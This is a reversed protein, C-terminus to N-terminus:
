PSSPEEGAAALTVPLHSREGRDALAGPQREPDGTRTDEGGRDPDLVLRCVLGPAVATGAPPFQEAVWGFGAARVEIGSGRLLRLADRLALGRLEPVIGKEDPPAGLTVVTGRGVIAGGAPEQRLVREGRAQVRAELGAQALRAVAAGPGLLRVDPVVVREGGVNPAPAAEVERMGQPLNAPGLTAIAVERFVPAAVEGGYHMRAPEDVSVVLVYRPDDAPFLGAFSSLYKGQAYGRGDTRAKQATGTKGAVTVGAIAARKGTGLEVARVLYRNLLAATEPSMTRRVREPRSALRVDGDAGVIERIIRPRRLEGGTALSLYALAVQLTTASVEQGIAVTPVSRGSWEEVPRLTGAAEGPLEIGSRRGFGFRRAAEYLARAGVMQGVKATAINSSHTLVDATCLWGLKKVDRIEFGGFNARGNEAFFVADEGIVGLDLAAAFTILKFTSGPEYADEIAALRHMRRGRGLSTTGASALAIVEGNPVSLLVATAGRAGHEAIARALADEAAWQLRSDLTLVVRAGHAAPKARADPRPALRGRADVYRTEWGDEGRLAPDMAREIGENGRGDHDLTGLLDCGAVLKVRRGAEVLELGPIRLRRIRVAESETVEPDLEILATSRSLLRRIEAESRKLIPALERATRNKNKIQAPRAVLTRCTLTHLLVRGDRDVVDGRVARVTVRREQQATALEHYRRHGLVQLCFLRVLIVFLIAACGLGVVLLRGRMAQLSTHEGQAWDSQRLATLLAPAPASAQRDLVQEGRQDVRRVLRDVSMVVSHAGGLIASWFAPRSGVVARAFRTRPRRGAAGRWSHGRWSQGRLVTGILVVLRLGLVALQVVMM